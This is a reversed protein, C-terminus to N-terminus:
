PLPVASDQDQGSDEKTRRVLEKLSNELLMMPESVCLFTFGRQRLTPGDGIIWMNKGAAEGAQRVQEIADLVLPNNPEWCVGLRASLDYPGIAIATTLPHAAIAAANELGRPSEIQPLIIVDEEVETKWNDYNYGSIWRNGPGGPRRKGRPPMYVGDQINELITVDDVMPLQLGCPGKDMALRVTEADTAHPRLLIPFDIMRGIMCVDSVLAEDFRIHETDIIIYDLGANRAIEVIGPWLHFTVIAGTIPTRNQIKERLIKATKM